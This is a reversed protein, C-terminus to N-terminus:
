IMYYSLHNDLWTIKYGNEVLERNFLSDPFPHNINNQFNETISKIVTVHGNAYCVINDKDVPYLHNPNITDIIDLHLNINEESKLFDYTNLRFNKFSTNESIDFNHVVVKAGKLFAERLFETRRPHMLDDCDFYSVIDTNLNSVAINRNEAGGCKRPTTIVSINLGYDNKIKYDEVESISVSIEDPIITQKSINEFLKDLHHLHNIYCPIALGFTM